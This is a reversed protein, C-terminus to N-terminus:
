VTAELYPRLVNTVRCIRAYHWLEDVTCKRKRLADRLAEIAVDLGIKNRYKFCDAITKGACYVRVLVGEINHTEIGESLAQGSFRTIRLPLVHERPHRAKVDIAMWVQSPLQTTLDHFRLASLLCIIGGPVRKCAEALTRNASPNSDAAVYLGRSIRELQGKHVLRTLYIRPIGLRALEQARLIGKKRVLKMVKNTATTTM